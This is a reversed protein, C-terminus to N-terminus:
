VQLESGQAMFAVNLNGTGTADMLESVVLQLEQGLAGDLRLAVGHNGQGAFAIRAEFGRAANGAKPLYVNTSAAMVSLDFNAKFNAINKFSGDPRKYRLLIGLTLAPAGGFTTLDSENDSVSTMTIQTIDGSQVPLPSLTFIVPTTSGNIAVGTASDKVLNSNGTGILALATPFVAGVQRDLTVVNGAVSIVRGQYFYSKDTRAIELMHGASNGTTLGHGGTLTINRSNAVTAAALTLGSVKTQLFYLDLPETTQDQLFVAVGQSGYASTEIPINTVETLVATGALNKPINEYSM